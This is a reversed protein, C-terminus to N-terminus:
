FFDRVRLTVIHNTSKFYIGRDYSFYETKYQMNELLM